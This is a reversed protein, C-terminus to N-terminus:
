IENRLMGVLKKVDEIIPRENALISAKIEARIEFIADFMEDTVQPATANEKIVKKIKEIILKNLIPRYGREQSLASSLKEILPEIPSEKTGPRMRDGSTSALHVFLYESNAICSRLRSRANATKSGSNYVAQELAASDAPGGAPPNVSIGLALHFASVSKNDSYDDCAEEYDALAAVIDKVCQVKRESLERDKTQKEQHESQEAQLRFQREIAQFSSQIQQQVSDSNATIQRDLLDSSAKLQRDLLESAQERQATSLQLAQKLQRDVNRTSLWMSVLVTVVGLLAQALLQIWFLHERGKHYSENAPEAPEQSRMTESNGDGDSVSEPVETSTEPNDNMASKPSNKFQM